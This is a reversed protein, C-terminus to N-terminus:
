SGLVIREADHDFIAQKARGEAIGRKGGATDIKAHGFSRRLHHTVLMFRRHPQGAAALDARRQQDAGLATIRRHALRSRDPGNAIRGISAPSSPRGREAM